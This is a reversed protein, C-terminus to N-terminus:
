SNINISIKFTFLCVNVKDHLKRFFVVSLQEVNYSALKFFAVLTVCVCVCVFCVCMCVCVMKHMHMSQVSNWGM